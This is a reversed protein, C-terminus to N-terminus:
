CHESGGFGYPSMSHTWHLQFSSLEVAFFEYPEDDAIAYVIPMGVNGVQIAKKGAAKLISDVMGVTTTKGNTGTLCLWKPTPRDNRENLRWALEVDGWIQIRREYADLMVPHDPRVGPSTVVLEPEQGDVPPYHM